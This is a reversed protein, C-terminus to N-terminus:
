AGIDNKMMGAKTTQSVHELFGILSKNYQEYLKLLVSLNNIIQDKGLSSIKKMLEIVEDEFEFNYDSGGEYHSLSVKSIVCYFFANVIINVFVDTEDDCNSKINTKIERYCSKVYTKLSNHTSVVEKGALEYFEKNYNYHLYDYILLENLQEIFEDIDSVELTKAKSLIKGGNGDILLVKNNEESLIVKIHSVPYRDYFYKLENQSLAENFDISQNISVGVEFRGEVEFKLKSPISNSVLLISRLSHDELKKIEFNGELTTTIKLILSLFDRKKSDTHTFESYNTVVAFGFEFYIRIETNFERKLRNRMFYDSKPSTFRVDLISGNLFYKMKLGDIGFEEIQEDTIDNFNEIIKHASYPIGSFHYIFGNFDNKSVNVTKFYLDVKEMFEKKNNEDLQETYIDLFFTPYEEIDRPAKEVWKKGLLYRYFSRKFNDEMLYLKEWLSYEGNRTFFLKREHKSM